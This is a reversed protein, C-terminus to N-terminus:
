AEGEEQPIARRLGPESSGWVGEESFTRVLEMSVDLTPASHTLAGVSIRDVGTAAVEAVTELTIGGSAEILVQEDRRRIHAVLERLEAPERNDLLVATAGADLAADVESPSTCEAQVDLATSGRLSRVAAAVSGAAVIHNDKVLVGDWLSFRHNTGGGTRVAYKELARLGPLTKRTDSIAVGAAATVFRRTLTAVGSLHGIINLATREGTLIARLPGRVSAVRDGSAVEDGDTAEKAVAVRGDLLGYTAELADLGCLVGGTQVLVAAEGWRDAPVTGQTTVDGSPGGGGLDEELATAAVREFHARVRPAAGTPVTV